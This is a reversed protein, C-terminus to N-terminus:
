ILRRYCQQFPRLNLLFSCRSPVKSGPLTYYVQDHWCGEIRALVDKEPVDKLRTKDDKEPDYTFVAGNVKNQTKGLWSEEAYNLIAKM